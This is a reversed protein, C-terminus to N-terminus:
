NFDVRFVGGSYDIYYLTGDIFYATEPEVKFGMGYLDIVSIVKKEELDVVRLTPKDTTSNTFGELSYIRGDYYAAGQIFRFYDASFSDTIDDATLTVKAVGTASDPEGADFAPLDFEFFRTTKDADRMTYAYLKGNDTDIVFNGYPRVDGGPSSWKSTDSTFGVKIIQVLESSFSNGSRTIRYVNCTGDYSRNGSYTNYINTYLLPFEDNEDYKDVGFCVANSHPSVISNKDLEFQSVQGYGKLSYVKCVGVSNFSFLYDGYVAGDQVPGGIAAVAECSLTNDSGLSEGTYTYTKAKYGSVYIKVESNEVASDLELVPDNEKCVAIRIYEVTSEWELIEEATIDGDPHWSGGAPMTPYANSGNGMYEFDEDYAFWSFSYGSAVSVAQINGIYIYEECAIRNNQERYVGNAGGITGLSWETEYLEAPESTDEEEVPETPTVPTEAPADTPKETPADTPKATPAETSDLAGNCSCLMLGLVLFFCLVLRRM